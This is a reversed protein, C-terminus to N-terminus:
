IHPKAGKPEIKPSSFQVFLRTPNSKLLLRELDQQQEELRRALHDRALLNPLAQPVIRDNLEFV